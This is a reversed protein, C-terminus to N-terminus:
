FGGHKAIFDLAEQEGPMFNACGHRTVVIAGCANGMRAARYWGWGKLCGYIFGSAFADGAGLLNIVEVRFPSAEIVEGSRLHIITSLPGRKIVLAEPGAALLESIGIALDRNVDDDIRTQNTTQINDSLAGSVEEATGIVVDVLRLASRIAVGYARADHWYPARYDLDFFVRTGSAHAREAAFLTASRSPERTLGTGSILLTRSAEIPAALVDDVTLELDACNDRYAIHPFLDPSEMALLVVSTRRGQKRPSFRVDVGERALFGIVFDGSLDDGVATLMATRLGLRSAGVGINAPCGGVYAAFSKVESFPVNVDNAYLDMLGRGMTLIDYLREV